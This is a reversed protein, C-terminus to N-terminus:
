AVSSWTPTATTATGVAKTLGGGLRAEMAGVKKQIDLLIQKQDQNSKEVDGKLVMQTATELQGVREVINALISALTTNPTALQLGEKSMKKIEEMTQM